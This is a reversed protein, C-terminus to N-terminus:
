RGKEAYATPLLGCPKLLRLLVSGETSAAMREGSATEAAGAGASGTAARRGWPEAPWIYAEGWLAGRQPPSARLSGAGGWSRPCRGAPASRGPRVPLVGSPRGGNERM